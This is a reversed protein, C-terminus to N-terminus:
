HQQLELELAEWVAQLQQLPAEDPEVVDRDKHQRQKHL